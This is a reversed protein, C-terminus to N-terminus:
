WLIYGMDLQSAPDAQIQISDGEVPLDLVQYPQNVWRFHSTGRGDFVTMRLQEEDVSNNYLILHQFRRFKPVAGGNRWVELISDVGARVTGSTPAILYLGRFKSGLPIAVTDMVPFVRAQKYTNFSGDVASMYPFGAAMASACAVALLLCVVPAAIRNM